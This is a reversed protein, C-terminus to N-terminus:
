SASATWLQAQARGHHRADAFIAGNSGSGGRYDSIVKTPHRRAYWCAPYGLHPFISRSCTQTEPQDTFIETQGNKLPTGYLVTVTDTAAAQGNTAIRHRLVAYDAVYLTCFAVVLTLGTRLVITRWM